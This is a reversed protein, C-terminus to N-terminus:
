FWEPIILSVDGLIRAQCALRHGKQFKDVGLVMQETGSIPSLNESGQLVEVICTGCRCNGGCYHPIDINNESAVSLIRLNTPVRISLNQNFTIVATKSPQSKRPILIKKILQRFKM